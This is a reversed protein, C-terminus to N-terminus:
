CKNIYLLAKKLLTTLRALTILHSNENDCSSDLTSLFVSRNVIELRHNLISAWHSTFLKRVAKYATAYVCMLVRQCSYWKQSPMCGKQSNKESEMIKNRRNESVASSWNCIIWCTTEQRMHLDSWKGPNAKKVLLGNKSFVVLLFVIKQGNHLLSTKREGGGNCDIRRDQALKLM